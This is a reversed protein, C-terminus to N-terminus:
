AECRRFDKNFTDRYAAVGNWDDYRVREQQEGHKFILNSRAENGDDRSRRAGCVYWKAFTERPYFNDRIYYRGTETGRYIERGSGEEIGEFKVEVVKEPNRTLDNYYDNQSLSLEYQGTFRNYRMSTHSRIYDEGLRNVVEEQVYLEATHGDEQATLKIRGWLSCDPLIRAIAIREGETPTSFEINM